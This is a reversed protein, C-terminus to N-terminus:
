GYGAGEGERGVVAGAGPEFDVFECWYDVGCGYGERGVVQGRIGERDRGGDWGAGVEQSDLM